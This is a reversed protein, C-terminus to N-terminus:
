SARSDNPKRMLMVIAGVVVVLGGGGAIWVWLPLGAVNSDSSQDEHGPQLAESTDEDTENQSGGDAAVVGCDEPAGADPAGAADVTFEFSQEGTHGDSYIVRYRLTYDGNPMGECVDAALDFDEVRAPGDQWQNGAADEILLLNALGEGDLPRGSFSLRVQDPTSNVTSGPEPDAAVLTDHAYAPGGFGLLMLLTLLGATLASYCSSLKM